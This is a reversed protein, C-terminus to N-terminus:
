FLIKASPNTHILSAFVDNSINEYDFTSASSSYRVRRRDRRNRNLFAKKYDLTWGINAKLTKFLIWDFSGLAYCELFVDSTGMRMTEIFVEDRSVLKRINYVGKEDESLLIVKKQGNMLFSSAIIHLAREGADNKYLTIAEHIELPSDAIRIANAIDINTKNVLASILQFEQWATGANVSGESLVQFADGVTFIHIAAAASLERFFPLYTEEYQEANMWDNGASENLVVEPIIFHSSEADLAQLIHSFDDPQKRACAALHTLVNNDLIYVPADFPISANYESCYPSILQMIEGATM